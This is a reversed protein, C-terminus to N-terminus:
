KAVSAYLTLVSFGGAEITGHGTDVGGLLSYKCGDKTATIASDDIPGPKLGSVYVTGRKTTAKAGSVPTPPNGDVYMVKADPHGNIAISVGDVAACAGSTGPAIGITAFGHTTDFGPMLPSWTTTKRLAFDLKDYSEPWAQEATTTPIYDALAYRRTSPMLNSMWMHFVGDTGTSVTTGPCAPFSISVGGLPAGVMGDTQRDTVHGELLDWPPPGCSPHPDRVVMEARSVVGAEVTVSGPAALLAVDCGAKKGVVTIKTGAAVGTISALGSSATTTAGSVPAFPMAADHYTVVAEPHGDVTVTVGDATSCAGATSAAAVDVLVVGAALGPLNSSVDPSVLGWYPSDQWKQPAVEYWRTPLWGDADFRFSSPVGITLHVIAYSEDDTEGKVEPCASMTFRIKQRDPQKSSAAGITQGYFKLEQEVYPGPGCNFEPYVPGDPNIIVDPRTDTAADQADGTSADNSPADSSSSGCGALLFVLLSAHTPTVFRM